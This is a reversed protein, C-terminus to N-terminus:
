HQRLKASEWPTPAVISVQWGGIYARSFPGVSTQLVARTNAQLGIAQTALSVDPIM